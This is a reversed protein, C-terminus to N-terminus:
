ELNNLSKSESTLVLKLAEYDSWEYEIEDFTITEDAGKGSLYVIDDSDAIFVALRIADLRGTYDHADFSIVPVDGGSITNNIKTMLRKKDLLELEETSYIREILRARFSEAGNHILSNIDYTKTNNPDAPALLVVDSYKAAVMGVNYFENFKSESLGIISIVKQTPGKIAQIHKLSHELQRANVTEDIFISFPSAHVKHMKGKLDAPETIGSIINEIPLYRNTLKLAAYSNYFSQEGFQKTNIRAEDYYDYEIGEKLFKKGKLNQLETLYCYINNKINESIQGIWERFDNSEGNIVALGNESILNLFESYASAEIEDLVGINTIVGSDLNLDSFVKKSVKYNDMEIIFFNYENEIEKRIKKLTKKTINLSTIKKNLQGHKFLGEDTLTVVYFGANILINAILNVTSSKGVYGTVGINLPANSIKRKSGLFSIM